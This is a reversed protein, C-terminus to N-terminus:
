LGRSWARLEEALKRLEEILRRRQDPEMAKFIERLMTQRYGSLKGKFLKSPGSLFIEPTRIYDLCSQEMKKPHGLNKQMISLIVDQADRSYLLYNVEWFDNSSYKEAELTRILEKQSVTIRGFWNKITSFMEESRSERYKSLGGQKEPDFKSNRERLKDAFHKIQAPSLDALVPSFSRCAESIIEAGVGELPGMVAAPDSSQGLKELETLIQPLKNEAISRSFVQWREEFVKKQEGSLDFFRVAARTAFFSHFDFIIQRYSCSTVGLILILALFIKSIKEKM